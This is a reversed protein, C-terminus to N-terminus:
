SLSEPLNHPFLLFCFITRELLCNYDECHLLFPFVCFFFHLTICANSLSRFQRSYYLSTHDMKPHITLSPGESDSKLFSYSNKLDLFLFIQEITILLFQMYVQTYTHATQMHSTHMYMVLYTGQLIYTKMCTYSHTYTHTHTHTHM